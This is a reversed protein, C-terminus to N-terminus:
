GEITGIAERASIARVATILESLQNDDLDDIIRNLADTTEDKLVLDKPIISAAVRVYAVPDEERCAAIADKGNAEWDALFDKLFTEAFKTRSGKPRGNPNGSQGPKFGYNAIRHPSVLQQEITTNDIQVATKTKRTSVMTM